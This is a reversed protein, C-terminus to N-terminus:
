KVLGRLVIPIHEAVATATVTYWKKALEDGSRGHLYCALQAAEIETYGQAIYAALLGTLVDGMGGQAMAPNGSPNISVKSSPEICFTYQNKLVIIINLQEAQKRATDIRGYWTEHKGFLRDFETMHPTIVSGAPIKKLLEPSAALINLADADIVLPKQIRFLNRLHKKAAASTGLGPGIAIVTFKDLNNPASLAKRELFMIEPFRANLATLGRSPISVTTLGAGGYLCASASLLAAGMTKEQGAVLLVHGYTGKHSFLKRPKVLRVVDAETLMRFIGNGAIGATVTTTAPASQDALFTNLFQKAM